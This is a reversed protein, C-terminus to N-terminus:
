GGFFKAMKPVRSKTMCAYRTADACHDEADTDVDDPKLRDAPLVPVTRLWNECSDFVWLGEREPKDEGANRLLERMRSWGSQRNNDAKTFNLTYGEQKAGIQMREYSSPGGNENFISPDAM